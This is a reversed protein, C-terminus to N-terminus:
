NEHWFVIKQEDRNYVCEISREIDGGSAKASSTIRFNESESEILNQLENVVQIFESDREESLGLDKVLDATTSFNNIKRYDLIKQRLEDPSASIETGDEQLKLVCAKILVKLAEESATNINVKDSGFVTVLGLLKKLEEAEIENIGKVLVLERSNSFEANKNLYGLERYDPQPDSVSEGRWFLINKVLEQPNPAQCEELLATLLQKDATNINIKAQEDQALPCNDNDCAHNNLRVITDNIGSAALALAALSDRQYRSLRLSISVRHGTSVTLITLIVLIWLIIIIVQAQKNM